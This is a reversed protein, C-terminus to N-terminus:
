SLEITYTITKEGKIYPLLEQAFKMESEGIVKYRSGNVCGSLIHFLKEADIGGRIPEILKAHSLIASKFNTDVIHGQRIGLWLIRATDNAFIAKIEPDSEEPNFRLRVSELIM